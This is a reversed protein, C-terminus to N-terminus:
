EWSRGDVSHTASGIEEGLRLERMKYILSKTKLIERMPPTIICFHNKGVMQHEGLAPLRLRAESGM